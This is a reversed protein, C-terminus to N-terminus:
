SSQAAKAGIAQKERRAAQAMAALAAQGGPQVLGASVVLKVADDPTM